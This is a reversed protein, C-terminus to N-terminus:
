EIAKFAKEGIDLLAKAKPALDFLRGLAAGAKGAWDKRAEDTAQPKVAESLARDAQDAAQAAAGELEPRMLRLEGLVAALAGFAEDPMVKVTGGTADRGGLTAGHGLTAGQLNFTTGGNGGGGVPREPLVDLGGGWVLAVHGDRQLRDVIAPVEEPALGLAGALGEVADAALRGGGLVAKARLAALLASAKHMGTGTGATLFM